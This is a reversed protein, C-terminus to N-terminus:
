RTTGVKSPDKQIGDKVKGVLDSILINPSFRLSHYDIRLWMDLPTNAIALPIHPIVADGRKMYNNGTM